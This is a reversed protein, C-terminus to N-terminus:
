GRRGELHRLGAVVQYPDAAAAVAQGGERAARRPPQPRRHRQAGPQHEHFPDGRAGAHRVPVPVDRRALGREAEHREAVRVPYRARRGPTREHGRAAAAPRDRARNAHVLQNDVEAVLWYRLPVLDHEESWSAVPFRGGLLPALGEAGNGILDDGADAGAHLPRVMLLTESVTAVAACIRESPRDRAVTSCAPSRTIRLPPSPAPLVVRVWPIPSPSPTRPGIVEGVNTIAR